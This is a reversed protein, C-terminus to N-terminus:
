PHVKGALPAAASSLSVAVTFVHPVSAMSRSWAQCVSGQLHAVACQPTVRCAPAVRPELTYSDACPGRFRPAPGGRAKRHLSSTATCSQPNVAPASTCLHSPPPPQRWRSFSTRQIQDLSVTGMWVEGKGTVRVGVSYHILRLGHGLDQRYWYMTNHNLDQACRLTVMQGTTLVQFTPTQTVSARGLGAPFVTSSLSCGGPLPETSPRLGRGVSPGAWTGGSPLLCLSVCCLLGGSLTPALGVCPEKPVTPPQVPVPSGLSLRQPTVRM